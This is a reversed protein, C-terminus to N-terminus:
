LFYFYISPVLTLHPRALVLGPAKVGARLKQLKYDLHPCCVGILKSASYCCLDRGFTPNPSLASLPLSGTSRLPQGAGVVKEWPAHGITPTDGRGGRRPGAPDERAGGGAPDAEPLRARGRSPACSCPIAEPPHTLPLSPSHLQAARQPLLPRSTLSDPAATQPSVLDSHRGLAPVRALARGDPGAHRAASHRAGCGAGTKPAVRTTRWVRSLPFQTGPPCNSARTVWGCWLSRTEAAEESGGPGPAPGKLEHAGGWEWASALVQGVKVGDPRATAPPLSAHGPCFGGRRSGRGRCLVASLAAAEAPIPIICGPGARSASPSRTYFCWSLLGPFPLAPESTTPVLRM